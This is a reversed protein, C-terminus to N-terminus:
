ERDPMQITGRQHFKFTVHFDHREQENAVLEIARKRMIKHFTGNM